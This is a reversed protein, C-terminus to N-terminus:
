WPAMGRGSFLGLSLELARRECGRDRPSVKGPGGGSLATPWSFGAELQVAELVPTRGSSKPLGWQNAVMLASGGVELHRTKEVALGHLVGAPFMPRDDGCLCEGGEGLTIGLGVRRVIGCGVEIRTPDGDILCQKCQKADVLLPRHNKFFFPGM